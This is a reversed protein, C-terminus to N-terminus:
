REVRPEPGPPHGPALAPAGDAGPEAARGRETGPDAAPEQDPEPGRERDPGPDAASGPDAEPGRERDPELVVVPLRRTTAVQYVEFGPFAACVLAWLREREEGEAERGRVPWASAGIRLTARPDARLNAVWSPDVHAGGKSGVVAWRDGDPHGYLATARPRGSRRGTTTLIVNRIGFNRGVVGRGRVARYAVPHLRSVLRSNGVRGIIRYAADPLRTTM